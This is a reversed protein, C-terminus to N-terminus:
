PPPAQGGDRALRGIERRQATAARERRAARGRELPARLGRGLGLERGAVGRAAPQMAGGSDLPAGSSSTCFRVLCKTTRRPASPQDEPTTRATSATENAIAAPEVSPRTPSDPQPLVVVDLSMRARSVGVPPLM